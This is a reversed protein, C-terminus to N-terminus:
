QRCCHCQHLCPRLPPLCLRPPAASTGAPWRRASSCRWCGLRPAPTAATLRRNRHPTRSNPHRSMPRYLCNRDTSALENPVFMEAPSAEEASPRLNFHTEMSRYSSSSTQQHLSSKTTSNCPSSNATQGHMISISHDNSGTLFILANSRFSEKTSRAPREWWCLSANQILM